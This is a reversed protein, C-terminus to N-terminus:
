NTEPEEFVKGLYGKFIHQIECGQVQRRLLAWRNDLEEKSNSVKTWGAVGIIEEDADDISKGLIDFHEQTYYWKSSLDYKFTEYCNYALELLKIFYARCEDYVSGQLTNKVLDSFYWTMSDKDLNGSTVFYQSEHISARRHENFFLFTPDNRMLKQKGRYWQKFGKTDALVYQFSFTINRSSSTFANVLSNIELIGVQQKEIENLFFEAEAIKMDILSALKEYKLKM